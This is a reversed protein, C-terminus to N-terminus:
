APCQKEISLAADDARGLSRQCGGKRPGTPDVLIRVLDPLVAKVDRAYVLDRFLDRLEAYSEFTLPNKREPRNLIISGVGDAFSWLFHTPQYTAPNM